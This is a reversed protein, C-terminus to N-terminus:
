RRPAMMRRAVVTMADIAQGLTSHLEVWAPTAGDPGSVMLSHQHPMGPIPNPYVGIRIIRSMGDLGDPARVEPGFNPMRWDRLTDLSVPVDPSADVDRRPVHPVDAAPSVPGSRRVADVAPHRFVPRRNEIHFPAEDAVTPAIFISTAECGRIGHTARVLDRTFDQLLRDPVFVVSGTPPLGAVFARTRIDEDPGIVPRDNM